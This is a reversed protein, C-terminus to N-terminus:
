NVQEKEQTTNNNIFSDAKLLCAYKSDHVCGRLPHALSEISLVAKATVTAFYRTLTLVVVGGLFFFV